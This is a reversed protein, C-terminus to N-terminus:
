WTQIRLSARIRRRTCFFFGADESIDQVSDAQFNNTRRNKLWDSANRSLDSSISRFTSMEEQLRLVRATTEPDIRALATIPSEELSFCSRHGYYPALSANM